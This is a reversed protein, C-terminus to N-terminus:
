CLRCQIPQSQQEDNVTAAEITVFIWLRPSPPITAISLFICPYSCINLVLILTFYKPTRDPAKDQYRYPTRIWNLEAMKSGRM